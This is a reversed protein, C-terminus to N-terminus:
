FLTVLTLCLSCCHCARPLSMKVFRILCSCSTRYEIQSIIYSVEMKDEPIALDERQAKILERVKPKDTKKKKKPIEEDDEENEDEENEDEEPKYDDGVNEMEQDIDTEYGDNNKAAPRTDPILAIAHSRVLTRRGKKPPSPIYIDTLYGGDEHEYYGGELHFSVLKIVTFCFFFLFKRIHNSKQAKDSALDPQDSDATNPVKARSQSNKAVSAVPRPRPKPAPKPKPQVDTITDENDEYTVIAMHIDSKIMLM